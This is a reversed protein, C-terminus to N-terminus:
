KVDNESGCDRPPGPYGPYCYKTSYPTGSSDTYTIYGAEVWGPAGNQVVNIQDYTLVNPTQDTQWDIAQGTAPIFSSFSSMPEPIAAFAYDIRKNPPISNDTFVSIHHRWAVNIAPSKGLNVLAVDLRVRNGVYGPGYKIQVWMYPRDGRIFETRQEAIANRTEIVQQRAYYTYFATIIVIAIASM